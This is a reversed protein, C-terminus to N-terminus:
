TSFIYYDFVSCNCCDGEEPLLKVFKSMIYKEQVYLWLVNTKDQRVPLLSSHTSYLM